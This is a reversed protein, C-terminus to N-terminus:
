KSRSSLCSPSKRKRAKTKRAKAITATALPAKPSQRRPWITIPTVVFLANEGTQTLGTMGACTIHVFRNGSAASSAAVYTTGTLESYGPVYITEADLAKIEKCHAAVSNIEWVFHQPNRDEADM